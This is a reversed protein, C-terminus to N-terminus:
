SEPRVWRWAAYQSVYIWRSLSMGPGHRQRKLHGRVQREVADHGATGEGPLTELPASM